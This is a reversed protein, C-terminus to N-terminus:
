IQFGVDVMKPHVRILSHHGIKNFNTKIEHPHLSNRFFTRRFISSKESLDAIFIFKILANMLVSLCIRTTVIFFFLQRNIKKNKKKVQLKEVNGNAIACPPAM